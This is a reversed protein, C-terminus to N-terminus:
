SSLMKWSRFQRANKVGIVLEKKFDGRLNSIKKTKDWFVEMLNITWTNGKRKFFILANLINLSNLDILLLSLGISFQTFFFIEFLYSVLLAIWITSSFIFIHDVKNTMLSTYILAITHNKVMLMSFQVSLFLLVIILILSSM